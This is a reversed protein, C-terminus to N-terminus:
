ISDNDLGRASREASIMTVINHPVSGSWALTSTIIGPNKRPCSLTLNAMMDILVETRDVRSWSPPVTNMVSGHLASVLRFIVVSCLDFCQADAMRGLLM